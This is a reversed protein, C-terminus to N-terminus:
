STIWILQSTLSYITRCRKIAVKGDTARTEEVVVTDEGEVVADRPLNVTVEEEIVEADAAEEADVVEEVDVAEGAVVELVSAEVNNIIEVGNDGTEAVEEGTTVM